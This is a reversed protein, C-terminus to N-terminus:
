GIEITCNSNNNFSDKIISKDFIKDIVEYVDELLIIETDVRGELIIVKEQLLDLAEHKTIM